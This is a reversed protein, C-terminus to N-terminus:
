KSGQYSAIFSNRWPGEKQYEVFNWDALTVAWEAFAKQEGLNPNGRFCFWDDFILITGDVLLPEVFKLVSKTSSYLDCDIHIIAAKRMEYKQITTEVCTEEFWGPVVVVKELPLGSKSTKKKFESEEFSWTGEVFDRGQNDIGEVAPLGQFSDFAFFRMNSWISKIKNAEESTRGASPSMHERYVEHLEHFSRIFSDGSFVGFELYDGEVKEAALIWAAKRVISNPNDVSVFNSSIRRFPLLIQKILRNM